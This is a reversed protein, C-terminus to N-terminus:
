AAGRIREKYKKRCPCEKVATLRAAVEAGYRHVMAAIKRGAWERKKENEDYNAIHNYEDLLSVTLWGDDCGELGCPVFRTSAVYENRYRTIFETIKSPKPYRGNGVAVWEAFAKTVEDLSYQELYKGWTEIELPTM